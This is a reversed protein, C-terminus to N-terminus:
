QDKRLLRSELVKIYLPTKQHKISNGAIEQHKRLSGPTEQHKRTHRTNGLTEQHKRTNGLLERDIRPTGPREKLIRTDDTTQCDDQLHGTHSFAPPAQHQVAAPPTCYDQYVLPQHHVTDRTGRGGKQWTLYETLLLGTSTLLPSLSSLQSKSDVNM